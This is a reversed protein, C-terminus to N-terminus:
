SLRTKVFAYTLWATASSLLVAFVTGCILGHRAYLYRAAVVYLTVNVLGSMMMSKGVARSFDVGGSRYTIVLTSVFVAPFAAFIGGIAPGLLRAIVVASTIVAGGFLARLVVQGAPCRLEIRGRSPIIMAKEVAFFCAVVLLAWGCVSVAFPCMGLTALAASLVLWIVFAGGFGAVAGRPVLFLYSVVFLGNIGQALPMLTTTSSAAAASQTVGIFLLSVLVTSPLGGILGGIKSGYRDAAVTTLAVWCSGVLLGLAVKLWFTFDMDTVTTKDSSATKTAEM